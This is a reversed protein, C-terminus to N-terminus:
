FEIKKAGKKVALQLPMINLVTPNQAFAGALGSTRIPSLDTLCRM